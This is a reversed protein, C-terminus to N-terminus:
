SYKMHSTKRNPHMNRDQWSQHSHVPTYNTESKPNKKGPNAILSKQCTSSRVITKTASGVKPLFMMTLMIRWTTTLWNGLATSYQIQCDKPLSCLLNWCQDMLQNLREESSKSDPKLSTHFYTKSSLFPSSARINSTETIM